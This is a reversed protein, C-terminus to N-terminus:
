AVLRPRSAGSDEGLALVFRDIDLPRGIHYGQAFQVHGTAKLERLRAESEVGEVTIRHGATHIMEITSFLLRHMLAGDDAMAFSRDLKVGDLPLAALNQINSYGTGFDDLHTRIGYRRLAEVERQAREIELEDSETIEVVPRFREPASEFRSLTDRLWIADLDRPCINFNIQLRRGPPVRESLEAWAKDVVHRTLARTLGRREIIPLFQDPFVISGDLDRWRVLVECGYIAASELSLIPQYTCVISRANFHRLFRAEFSWFRRLIAHLQGSIGLAVLGSVISGLLLMPWAVRLLSALEAETVACILGDLDCLEVYFRGDRWSLSGFMPTAQAAREGIGEMGARHVARGSSKMVLEQGFWPSAAMQGNFRPIVVALDGTRVITGTDAYLGLFDLRRDLYIINDGSILSPEGLDFGPIAKGVSCYVVGGPAYLFENIGDPRYALQRMQEFFAFSCPAATLTVPLLARTAEIKARGEQMVSLPRQTEARLTGALQLLSLVMAMTAVVVFSGLWLMVALMRQRSGDILLSILRAM